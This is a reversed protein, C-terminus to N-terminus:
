DILRCRLKFRTAVRVTGMMKDRQVAYLSMDYHEAIDEESYADVYYKVMVKLWQRVKANETDFLHSLMDEIAMAQTENIKCRPLARKRRDSAIGQAMDLIKGLSCHAGLDDCHNDLMLWSGYQELWQELTFQKWEIAIQFNKRTQVAEMTVEVKRLARWPKFNQRKTQATANTANIKM